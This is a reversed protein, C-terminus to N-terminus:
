RIRISYRLVLEMLRGMSIAVDLVVGNTMIPM